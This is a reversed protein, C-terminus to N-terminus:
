FIFDGESVTAADVDALVLRNGDPDRIVTSGAVAVIRLDAFGTVGAHGSFDLKETHTNWDLIRDEGFGDRFVFRDRGPGGVIRDSGPGGEIM